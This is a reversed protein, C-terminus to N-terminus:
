AQENQSEKLIEISEPILIGYGYLIDGVISTALYDLDYAAQVRPLKQICLTIADKKFLIVCEKYEGEDKYEHCYKGKDLFTSKRFVDLDFVTTTKIDNCDMILTAIDKDVARALGRGAQASYSAILDPKAQVKGIDEIRFAFYKHKNITVEKENGKLAGKTPKDDIIIEPLAYVTVKDGQNEIKGSYDLKTFPIFKSAKKTQYFIEKSWVEPIFADINKNHSM